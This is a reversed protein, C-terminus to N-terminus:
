GAAAKAKKMKVNFSESRLHGNLKQVAGKGDGLVNNGETKGDGGNGDEVEDGGKVGMLAKVGGKVRQPVEGDGATAVYFLHALNPLTNRPDPVRIGFGKVCLMEIDRNLLFVGYIFRFRIVGNGTYLPYTRESSSTPPPLKIHDEATSTSGRLTLPYPLPISLYLSLQTVVQAVYGLAASIEREQASSVTEIESNPLALGRITFSLPKGDPTPVIPYIRSLDECVRRRHAATDEATARIKQETVALEERGKAIEELIAAQAARSEAMARRRETISAALDARRKKATAVRSRQSKLAENADKVAMQAVPVEKVLSIGTSNRKLLDNIETTLRQRTSLADQICVDLTFLRELSNYTSTPLTVRSSPLQSSSTANSTNDPSISAYFEPVLEDEPRPTSVVPVAYVGDILHFLVSNQPFPRRHTDLSKGVFHLDPLSITLEVLFQHGQEKETRAWVKITLTDLRTVAPGWAHLDFFRFNPNMAKGVEESIYVPDDIGDVHLSFFTDAMRGATVDELKRQRALPSAGSWSMTSRRRLRGLLPRPSVDTAAVADFVEPSLSTRTRDVVDQAAITEGIPTLDNSSRSHELKRGERLAVTKSPSKRSTPVAEDDITARCPRRSTQPVALNRITIGQLHRLKRNNPLLLPREKSPLEVPVTAHADGAM